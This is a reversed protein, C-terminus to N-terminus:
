PHCRFSPVRWMIDASPSRSSSHTVPSVFNPQERDTIWHPRITVCLCAESSNLWCVTVSERNALGFWWDQKPFHHNAVGFRSGNATQPLLGGFSSRGTTAQCPLGRLKPPRPHWVTAIQHDPRLVTNKPPRGVWVVVSWTSQPPRCHCVM